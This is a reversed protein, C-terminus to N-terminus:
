TMWNNDDLYKKVHEVFEIAKAWEEIILKSDHLNYIKSARDDFKIYVDSVRLRTRGNVHALMGSYNLIPEIWNAADISIELSDYVQTTTEDAKIEYLSYLENKFIQNRM